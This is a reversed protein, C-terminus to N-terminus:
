EFIKHFIVYYLIGQTEVFNPLINSDFANKLSYGNGKAWEKLLEQVVEDNEAWKYFLFVKKLCNLINEGSRECLKILTEWLYYDEGDDDSIFEGESSEDSQDNHVLGFLDKSM